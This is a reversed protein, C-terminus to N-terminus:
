DDKEEMHTDYSDCDMGYELLCPHDSEECMAIGEFGEDTDPNVYYRPPIYSPCNSPNM